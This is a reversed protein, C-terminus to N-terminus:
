QDTVVVFEAGPYERRLSTWVEETLGEVQGGKITVGGVEGGLTLNEVRVGEVESATDEKAGGNNAESVKVTSVGNEKADKEASGSEEEFAEHTQILEQVADILTQVADQIMSLIIITLSINSYIVPSEESTSIEKAQHIAPAEKCNVLMFSGDSVKQIQCVNGSDDIIQIPDERKNINEILIPSSTSELVPKTVSITPAEEAEQNEGLYIIKLDKQVLDEFKRPDAKRLIVPPPDTNKQEEVFGPDDVGEETDLENPKETVGSEETLSHGGDPHVYKIHNEYYEKKGFGHDCVRCKMETKHKEIHLVLNEQSVFYKQCQDCQFDRPKEHILRKHRMVDNRRTFRDDCLDCKFQKVGTHTRVHSRYSKQKLKKNCEPCQVYYVPESVGVEEESWRGLSSPNEKQQQNGKVSLDLGVTEGLYIMQQANGLSLNGPQVLGLSPPPQSAPEPNKVVKSLNEKRPKRPKDLSIECGDQNTETVIVKITPQVDDLPAIFRRKVPNSLSITSTARVMGLGGSRGEM